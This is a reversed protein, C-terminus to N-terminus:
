IMGLLKYGDALLESLEDANLKKQSLRALQYIFSAYTYAKSDAAVETDGILDILKTYLHSATNLTLTYDLPFAPLDAGPTAYMRMMDEMRRSDESVNLVAPLSEDKLAEFKIETTEPVIKKFIELAAPIDEAGEGKMAAIQEEHGGKALAKDLKECKVHLDDLGAGLGVLAEGDDGHGLAGHGGLFRLHLLLLALGLAGGLVEGGAGIHGLLQTAPAEGYRFFCIRQQRVAQGMKHAARLEFPVLGQDVQCFFNQPAFDAPMIHLIHDDIFLIQIKQEILISVEAAVIGPVGPVALHPEMGSHLHLRHKFIIGVFVIGVTGQKGTGTPGPVFLDHLDGPPDTQGIGITRYFAPQGDDTIPIGDIHVIGVHVTQDDAGGAALFAAQKGHGHQFDDAAGAFAHAVVKGAAVSFRGGPRVLTLQLRKATRESAISGTASALLAVSLLVFVGGLSFRVYLERIGQATGDSKIIFPLVFMWLVSVALLVAFTGSRVLARMELSVISFFKKM